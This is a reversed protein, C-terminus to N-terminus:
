GRVTIEETLQHILLSADAQTTKGASVTLGSEVTPSFGKAEVRVSYQGTPLGPAEYKGTKDTMFTEVRNDHFIKVKAHPVVAGSPDKVVGCISGTSIAASAIGMGAAILAATIGTILKRKM